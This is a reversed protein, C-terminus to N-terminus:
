DRLHHRIMEEIGHNSVRRVGGSVAYVVDDNGVLFVTGKINVVTGEIAGQDYVRGSVPRFPFTADGTAYWVETTSEGVLWATDGVVTVDLIRDPQSEATAFDLPDIVLAGPQIWYFRDTRGLAVLVFSKLTAVSIPPLGDPVAVGSLAHSGGGTLTAGGWTIFGSGGPEVATEILNGDTLDVRATVTLMTPDSEATVEGNQGGLNASYDVGSIGTFSIAKVMNALSAELDAGILVQFPAGHTGIGPGVTNVWQYWTVGIRITDGDVVQQSATLTGIAHSGGQYVQLITGDAIFLREYGAGTVSTMSVPGEGFVHGTCPVTTGDIERRYLTNGAVFFLAGRCLGVNSYFSRVPQQSYIGLDKTGPRALMAAGNNQTPTQEFYRNKLLAAPLGAFQRENSTFSIAVEAM